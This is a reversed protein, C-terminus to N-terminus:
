EAAERIHSEELDRRQNGFALDEVANAATQEEDDLDVHPRAAYRRDLWRMLTSISLLVSTGALLLGVVSTSTQTGTSIYWLGIALWTGDIIAVVTEDRVHGKGLRRRGNTIHGLDRLEDAANQRAAVAFLLGAIAAIIWVWIVIM